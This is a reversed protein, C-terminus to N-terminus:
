GGRRALLGGALAGVLAALVGPGAALIIELPWLNHSTPDSVTDYLVRAMVAAPVSSGVILMAPWFRTHAAIRPLAALGAVVILPLGLVANPLSLQAYPVQWYPVGVVLFAGFFALALIIQSKTM